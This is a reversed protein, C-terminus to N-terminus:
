RNDTFNRLDRLKNQSHEKKFIPVPSAHAHAVHLTFMACTNDLVYQIADKPLSKLKQNERPFVYVQGTQSKSHEPHEPHEPRELNDTEYIRTAKKHSKCEIHNIQLLAPVGFAQMKQSYSPTNSEVM